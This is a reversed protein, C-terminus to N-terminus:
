KFSKGSLLLATKYKYNLGSNWKIQDNTIFLKLNNGNIFEKIM